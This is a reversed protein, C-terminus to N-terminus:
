GTVPTPMPKVRVTSRARARAAGAATVTAHNTKRGTTGTLARVRLTITRSRPARAPALLEWCRHGRSLRAKSTAGSLVARRAASPM